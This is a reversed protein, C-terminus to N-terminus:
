QWLSTMRVARYIMSDTTKLEWIKEPTKTMTVEVIQAPIKNFDQGGACVLINGNPLRDADGLFPTFYETPYEWIQEAVLSEQDLGYIVARSRRDEQNVPADTGNDYLLISGDPLIEPAHQSYFWHPGHPPSEGLLTFDGQPGLKWLVDSTSRDIKVIWNQNRLSLLLSGDSDSLLIANAHTWEYGGPKKSLSLNTPFRSTDLHDFTSWSWTSLGESDLEVIEDGFALIPESSWPVEVERSDLGVLSMFKGDETMIAEHHFRNNLPSGHEISDILTGDMSIVRMGDEVLLLLNNDHLISVSLDNRVGEPDRYFWVIDGLDDVGVFLSGALYGQTDNRPSPGFITLGTQVLEPRHVIVELEPFGSPLPGTTFELVEYQVIHGDALIAFVKLRYSTDPRMGVVTLRHATGPETEM